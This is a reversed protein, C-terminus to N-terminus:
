LPLRPTLAEDRLGRWVKLAQVTEPVDHVRVIQAGQDAAKLALALSGALRQDAPVEGALAGILRKRSAGVLLPCGLGHFAALGNMLALNHPVTKGFGIGPDVIIRSREIGRAEAWGIREELWLWIDVLADDYTPNDQMVQPDGQAHMLVVPVHAGAVVEASREDWGLASVDNVIHAGLALAREMVAAKRTDVSVANGGKVLREIVPAVREIEDGEWVTRAGPRTSEGGVDLIAAGAGAMDAGALCVADVDDHRGGDSFSDPTCNLIGMVRPQDLPITREGLALPARAATIAQWQADMDADCREELGAVPVLESGVRRNADDLQLLEVQSFWRMGCALRAVKGDHGFPADVFGTPRLITRTM